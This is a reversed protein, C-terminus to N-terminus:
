KWKNPRHFFNSLGIGTNLFLLVIELLPIPLILDKEHLKRFCFALIVYQIIMRLVVLALVPIVSYDLSLMLITLLYFCLLSLSYVGLLFKHRYRYHSSTTLHRKKQYIWHRFTSKPESYTFSGPHLMVATNSRRAIKNIFLDDDGSKIRYHSIFGRNNFFESKLYSLNRGVGMYPLGAMAYSFYQTAIHATDFRILRNLLGKAKSYPGYGLVITTDEKYASQMLSLWDASSPRCDADTLLIKNYKASRIGIALPFKKGTFFNLDNEIEISKLHPYERQLDSLLYGSDDESAHNVVLVEYEPYDQQLIAPLNAKLNYYENHACIVVSVGENKSNTRISRFAALRIFILLYYVTQILFLSSLVILLILPLGRLDVLKELM